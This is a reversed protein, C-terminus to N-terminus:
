PVQQLLGQAPAPMAVPAGLLAPVQAARLPRSLLYGQGVHVGLGRLMDLQEPTEIGEAVSEMELTRALHGVAHVIAM